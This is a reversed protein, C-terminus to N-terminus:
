KATVAGSKLLQEGIVVPLEITEGAQYETGKWRLQDAATYSRTKSTQAPAEDPKSM